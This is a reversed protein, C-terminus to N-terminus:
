IISLSVVKFAPTAIQNIDLCQCGPLTTKKRPHVQIAVVASGLVYALMINPIIPSSNWLMKSMTKSHTSQGQMKKLDWTWASLRPNPHDPKSQLECHCHCHCATLCQTVTISITYSVSHCYFDIVTCPLQVYLQVTLFQVHLSLGHFLSLSLRILCVM